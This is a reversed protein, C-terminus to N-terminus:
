LLQSDSNFVNGPQLELFRKFYKNIISAIICFCFKGFTALTVSMMLLLMVTAWSLNVNM